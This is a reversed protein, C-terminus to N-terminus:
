FENETSESLTLGDIELVKRFRGSNSRVKLGKKLLVDGSTFVHEKNLINKTM